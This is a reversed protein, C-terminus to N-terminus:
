MNFLTQQAEDPSMSENWGNSYLLHKKINNWRLQYDLNINDINITEISTKEKITFADVQEDAFEGRTMYEKRWLANLVKHQVEKSYDKSTSKIYDVTDTMHQKSIVELEHAALKFQHTALSYSSGDTEGSAQPNLQIVFSKLNPVYYFVHPQNNLNNFRIAPDSYIKMKMEGDQSTRFRYTGIPILVETNDDLKGSYHFLINYSPKYKIRFLYYGPNSLNLDEASEINKVSDDKFKGGLNNVTKPLTRYLNDLSDDVSKVKYNSLSLWEDLIQINYLDKYQQYIKNKGTEWTTRLRADDKKNSNIIKATNLAVNKLIYSPLMKTRKNAEIKDIKKDLDELVRSLDHQILRPNTADHKIANIDSYIKTLIQKTVSDFGLVRAEIEYKVLLQKFKARVEDNKIQSSEDTGVATEVKRTIEDMYNALESKRKVYDNNYDVATNNLIRKVKLLNSKILYSSLSFRDKLSSMLRDGQGLTLINWAIDVLSGKAVIKNDENIIDFNDYKIIHEM